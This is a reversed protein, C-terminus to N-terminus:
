YRGTSIDIVLEYTLINTTAIIAAVISYINSYEMEDMVNKTGHL